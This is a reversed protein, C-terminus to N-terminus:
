AKLIRANADAIGNAANRTDVLLSAHRAIWAFDYVSHDTVIVVCDQRALFAETLPESALEMSLRPLHLRPIFPDNYSILAGSRELLELITLAPSERPDDV